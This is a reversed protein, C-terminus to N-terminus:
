GWLCELFDSLHLMWFCDLFPVAESASLYAQHRTTSGDRVYVRTHGAEGKADRFSVREFQSAQLTRSIFRSCHSFLRRSFLITGKHLGARLCHTDEERHTIENGNLILCKSMRMCTSSGQHKTESVM